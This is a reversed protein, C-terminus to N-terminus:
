RRVHSSTRKSNPCRAQLRGCRAGAGMLGWSRIHEAITSITADTRSELDGAGGRAIRPLPDACQGRRAAPGHQRACGRFFDTASGGVSDHGRPCSWPRTDVRQGAPLWDGGRRSGRGRGGDSRSKDSRPKDSRPKDYRPKDSRSGTPQSSGPRGGQPRGRAAGGSSSQRGGDAVNKESRPVARDPRRVRGVIAIPAM